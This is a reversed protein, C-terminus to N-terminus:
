RRRRNVLHREPGPQRFERSPSLTHLSGPEPRVCGIGPRVIWDMLCRLPRGPALAGTQPARRPSRGVPRSWMFGQRDQFIANITRQTPAAPDDFRNFRTNVRFGNTTARHRPAPVSPSARTGASSLRADLDTAAQDLATQPDATGTIVRNIAGGVSGLFDDIQAIRPFPAEPGANKMATITVDAWSPHPFAALFEPSRWVSERASSGNKIATRLSIDKGSAWVIFRFAAEKNRSAANIGMMWNFSNPIAGSPGEPLPAYGVRGHVASQGQDEFTSMLLSSDIYMAVRGQRFDRACEEWSYDGVGQPGADQLLHALHSLATVGAPRNFMAQHPNMVDDFHQGGFSWLFGSFNIVSFIPRGRMCIGAVTGPRDLTMAALYLDDMTAPARLGHQDFLDQRYYLIEADADVSIGYVHGDVTGYRRLGPPIDDLDFNALDVLAPNALYDDLPEIWGTRAYQTLVQDLMLVDFHGTGSSVDAARAALWKEEPFFTKVKVKIGTAKEFEPILPILSNTYPHENIGLVLTVPEVSHNGPPDAPTRKVDSTLLVFLLALLLVHTPSQLRM